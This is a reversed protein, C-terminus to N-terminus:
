FLHLQFGTLSLLQTTGKCWTAFLMGCMLLTRHMAHSKCMITGLGSSCAHQFCNMVWHPSIDVPREHVFSVIQAGWLMEWPARHRSRSIYQVVGVWTNYVSQHLWLPWVGKQLPLGSKENARWQDLIYWGILFSFERAKQINMVNKKEKKLTFSVIGKLRCQQNPSVFLEVLHRLVALWAM